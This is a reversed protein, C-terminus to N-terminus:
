TEGRDGGEGAEHGQGGVWGVAAVARPLRGPARGGAAGAEAEAGPAPLLWRRASAHRAGPGRRREPRNAPAPLSRDAAAGGGAEAAAM